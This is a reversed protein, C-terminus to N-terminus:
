KARRLRRAVLGVGSRALGRMPAMGARLLSPRLHYSDAPLRHQRLARRCGEVDYPVAYFTARRRETDLVMFRARVLRERSQGVAGPNLVCSRSPSLSVSADHSPYLSGTEAEWAWARHTHGLMLTTADPHEAALRRLQEAAEAPTRTYEEPDGLSGHAIVARGNAGARLPLSELYARTDDRLTGRTWRLSEQALPICRADSLRGLVILDHNGAVCVPELSAVLEVCENPFPGYGVLDGACLYGDVRERRLVELAADLAHLNGHVDAIVGHRM